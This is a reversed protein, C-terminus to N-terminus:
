KCGFRQGAGLIHQRMGEVVSVSSPYMKLRGSFVKGSGVFGATSAIGEVWAGNRGCGVVARGAERGVMSYKGGEVM